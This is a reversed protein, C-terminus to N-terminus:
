DAIAASTAISAAPWKVSQRAQGPAAYSAPVAFLAAVACVHTRRVIRKYM